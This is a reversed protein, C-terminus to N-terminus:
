FNVVQLLVTESNIITQGDTDLSFFPYYGETKNIFYDFIPGSVVNFDENSSPISVLVISNGVGFQFYVYPGFGSNDEMRFNIYPTNPPVIPTGDPSPNGNPFVNMVVLQPATDDLSLMFPGPFGQQNATFDIVQPPGSVGTASIELHVQAGPAYYDSTQLPDSDPDVGYAFYNGNVANESQEPAPLSSYTNVIYEGAGVKPFISNTVQVAQPPGSTWTSGTPNTGIPKNQSGVFPTAGLLPGNYSGYSAMSGQSPIASGGAFTFARVEWTHMDKSTIIGLSTIESLSTVPPIRNGNGDFPKGDLYIQYVGFGPNSGGQFSIGNWTITVKAKQGM